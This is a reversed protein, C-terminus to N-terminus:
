CEGSTADLAVNGEADMGQVAEICDIRDVRLAIFRFQEVRAKSAQQTNLLSTRRVLSVGSSFHLHVRRISEAVTMGFFTMGRGKSGPPSPSGLSSILPAQGIGKVPALQACGGVSGYLGAPTIRSLKLCPRERWREAAAGRYVYLGWRAGPAKREALVAFRHTPVDKWLPFDGFGARAEGVRLTAAPGVLACLLAMLALARMRMRPGASGPRERGRCIERKATM